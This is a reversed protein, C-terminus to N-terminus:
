MGEERGVTWRFALVLAGMGDRGPRRVRSFHAGSVGAVIPPTLKVAM